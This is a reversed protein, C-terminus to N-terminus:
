RKLEGDKMFKQIQNQSVNMQEMKDVWKFSMDRNRKKYENEVDKTFAKGALQLENSSASVKVDKSGATMRIEKESLVSEHVWGNQAAKLGKVKKWAGSSDQVIVKDGYAARGTIKGLYDPKERLQAEKIQISMTSASLAAGYAMLILCVAIFLLKTKKM